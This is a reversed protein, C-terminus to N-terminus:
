SWDGAAVGRRVAAMLFRALVEAARSAPRDIPQALLLERTMGDGALPAAALRGAALDDRVSARPLITLGLGRAALGIQLQLSDAEVPVTLDFANRAAARDLIMRLRHGRSPLVLPTDRLSAFPVPRDAHLDSGPPGLLLLAETVLPRTKLTRGAEPGYIVALDLRGGRLWEELNGSLGAVVRLAVAPHAAHFALALSESLARDVTPPLGLVVQGGMAGEAQAVDARAQDVQRLIAEARAVLRRGPETLRVGRGHRHFLPQGLEAELQRVQRGLAPQAINLREAARSFNGLEAVHLFTRLHKLDVVPRGM